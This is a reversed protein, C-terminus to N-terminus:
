QELKKQPKWPALNTKWQELDTKMTKLTKMTGPQNKMKWTSFVRFSYEPGVIWDLGQRGYAPKPWTQTIQFLSVIQEYSILLVDLMRLQQDFIDRNETKKQPLISFKRFGIIQTFCEVFGM